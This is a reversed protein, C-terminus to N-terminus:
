GLSAGDWGADRQRKRSRTSHTTPLQSPVSTHNSQEVRQRNQVPALDLMFRMAEIPTDKTTGLVLRMAENQVRGLKLLHTQAMTTVGPGYDLVNLLM